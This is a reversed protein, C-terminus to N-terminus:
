RVVRPVHVELPPVNWALRLTAREERGAAVEADVPSALFTM